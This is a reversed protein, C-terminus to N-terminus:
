RCLEMLGELVLADACCHVRLSTRVAQCGQCMGAGETCEESEQLGTRLGAQEQQVGCVGAVGERSGSSGCSGQVREASPPSGQGQRGLSPPATWPVRLRGTYAYACVAWAVDVDHAEPLTVVPLTRAYCVRPSPAHVPAQRTQQQQQQQTQPLPLEQEAGQLQQQSPRLQDQQLLHPCPHPHPPGMGMGAAACRRDSQPCLPACGDEVAGGLGPVRPGVEGLQLM